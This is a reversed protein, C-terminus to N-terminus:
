GVFATKAYVHVPTNKVRETDFVNKQLAKKM